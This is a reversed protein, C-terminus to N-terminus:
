GPYILSNDLKRIRKHLARHKKVDAVHVTANSLVSAVADAAAQVHKDEDFVFGGLKILMVYAPVHAMHEVERRVLWAKKIRKLPALAAAIADLIEADLAPTTIPMKKNFAAREKDAEHHLQAHRNWRDYYSQAKENDQKHHYFYNFLLENGAEDLANDLQIAKEIHAVGTDDNDALLMRGMVYNAYAHEPNRTLLNAFLPRAAASGEIDELLTAFDWHEEESLASLDGKAQYERIKDRSEQIVQHRQQWNDAIQLQWDNDFQALLEQNTDALLLAAASKDRGTLNLAPKSRLSRLRDVLAPHTDHLDTKHTLVDKFKETLIEKPIHFTSNILQTYAHPPAHQEHKVKDFLSQWYTNDMYDALTYVKTLAAAAIPASTIRASEHDAEYENARALVFSYANFYPAYWDFFRTFIGALASRDQELRSLLLYWVQRIRYIWNGFRAHSKSLHGFEHAIVARLEEVSLMNLLPLGLVLYNRPWGLMGLRPIQAVAANLEPTIIIRHIRQARLAKRIQEVEAFLQPAENHKLNHGQPPTFRIWMAKFIFYALGLPIWVLKIMAKILLPNKSFIALGILGVSLVLAICLLVVVYGIGLAALLTLKFKYWLPRNKSEVELREILAQYQEINRMSNHVATDFKNDTAPKM